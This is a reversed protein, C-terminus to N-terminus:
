TTPSNARPDLSDSMKGFLVNFLTRRQLVFRARITMGRRLDVATGTASNLQTADLDIVAKFAIQQGLQVFDQSISRVRGTIMGWETYPFADIQLKTTQGTKVFGVDRPSLYVDAQLAATPSIEGIRQDAPLFLGAHLGTFGIATGNIPARVTYLAAQQTLQERESELATDKLERELRESQWRSLTQQVILQFEREVTRVAYEQQEFEQQTILGKEHLSKSRVLDHMVKSRQLSLRALDSQLVAHQRLYQPTFLPLSLDTGTSRPSNARALPPIEPLEPASPDLVAPWADPGLLTQLDTLARTNKEREALNQSIRAQLASSDIVLLPDGAQVLQNDAVLFESIRGSIAPYVVLREVAPRIQGPAGVSMDVKVIPLASLAALTVVLLSWYIFPRNNGHAGLLSEISDRVDEPRHFQTTPM